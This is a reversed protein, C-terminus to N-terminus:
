GEETTRKFAEPLSELIDRATMSIEGFREKALDGAVGHVYVALQAAEFPALGQGSLGAMVGLLVDGAGATAMGPNGTENIYYRRADTVVSGHGKLVVVAGTQRSLKVASGLRDRQVEAASTGLLRAAEGPHPTLTLEPVVENLVELRGALLNLGDADIIAPHRLQPILGILFDRTEGSRSLGPGIAVVDTEELLPLVEDLAAARISGEVTEPLPKTIFCSLPGAVIPYLSRPVALRVLGAGARLAAEAALGAAGTMGESGAIVLVRGYDGKHTDPRRPKMKPFTSVKELEARM